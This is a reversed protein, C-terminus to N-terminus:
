RGGGGGFAAELALAAAESAGADRPKFCFVIRGSGGEMLLGLGRAGGGAAAAAGAEVAVALAAFLLLSLGGTELRVSSFCLVGVAGEVAVVGAGVPLRLLGLAM